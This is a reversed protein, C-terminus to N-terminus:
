EKEEKQDDTVQKDNVCFLSLASFIFLAAEVRPYDQLFIALELLYEHMFFCLLLAAFIVIKM